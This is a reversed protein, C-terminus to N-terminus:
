NSVRDEGVTTLFDDRRQEVSGSLEHISIGLDSYFGSLFRDIELQFTVDKERIGDDIPAFEPRLYFIRDYTRMWQRVSAEVFTMEPDAQGFLFATYAWHDAVSRDTLLIRGTTVLQAEHVMQSIIIALQRPLTNTERRLQGSDELLDLLLRPVEPVVAVTPDVASIARVLTTKGTGHAGSIAVKV